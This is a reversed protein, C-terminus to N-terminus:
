RRASIRVIEACLRIRCIGVPQQVSALSDFVQAHMGILAYLNYIARVFVVARRCCPAILKQRRGPLLFSSPIM